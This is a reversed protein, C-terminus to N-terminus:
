NIAERDNNMPSLINGYELDHNIQELLHMRDESKAQKVEIDQSIRQETNVRAIESVFQQVKSISPNLSQALKPAM